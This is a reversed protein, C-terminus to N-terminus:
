LESTATTFPNYLGASMPAITPAVCVPPVKDGFEGLYNGPPTYRCVVFQWELGRIVCRHLNGRSATSSPTEHIACTNGQKMIDMCKETYDLSNSSSVRGEKLGLAKVMNPCPHANTIGIGYKDFGPLPIRRDHNQFSTSLFVDGISAGMAKFGGATGASIVLDVQLNMLGVYTTLGAPVTGVNDVGYKDSKGNTLLHVQIGQYEGKFYKIPTPQLWKESQLQLGMIDVQPQAEQEMAIILLVSEIQTDM